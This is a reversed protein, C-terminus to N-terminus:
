SDSFYDFTFLKSQMKNDCVLNQPMDNKVPPKRLSKTVNRIKEQLGGLKTKQPSDNIFELQCDLNKTSDDDQ